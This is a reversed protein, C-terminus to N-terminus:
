AHHSGERVRSSSPIMIIRANTIIPTCSLTKEKERMLVLFWVFLWVFSLFTSFPVSSYSIIHSPFIFLFAQSLYIIFVPNSFSRDSILPMSISSFSFSFSLFFLFSLSLSLSLFLRILFAFALSLCSAVRRLCSYHSDITAM